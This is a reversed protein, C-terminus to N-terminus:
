VGHADRLTGSMRDSVDRMLDHRHDYDYGVTPVPELFHLHVTGSRVRWTGRPMVERTGHIVLPTVPARAAIALVFPGKKFPRLTYDEGRTGEPYVIVSLGNAVKEAVKQYADFASKRNDRALFVVGAGEAGWGFIPIRRLEEKAVFTFRPITAASAFIDFWSVHNSAFITGRGPVVNEWGHVVIKVGAAWVVSRAWTRMCWLQISNNRADYRLVHALVAIPSMIITMVSLILGAFVTRM